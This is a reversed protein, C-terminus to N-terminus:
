KVPGPDKNPVSENFLCPIAVLAGVRNRVIGRNRLLGSGAEALGSGPDDGTTRKTM